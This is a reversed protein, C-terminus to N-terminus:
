ANNTGPFSWSGDDTAEYSLQGSRRSIALEFGTPTWFQKLRKILAIALSENVVVLNMAEISILLYM